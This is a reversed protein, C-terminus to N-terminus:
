FETHALPIGFITYRTAAVRYTFQRARMAEPPYTAADFPLEFREIVVKSPVANFLPPTSSHLADSIDYDLAIQAFPRVATPLKDIGDSLWWPVFMGVCFGVIVVIIVLLDKYIPPVKM